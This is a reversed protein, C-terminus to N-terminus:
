GSVQQLRDPMVLLFVRKARFKIKRMESVLAEVQSEYLAEFSKFPPMPEIAVVLSCDAYDKIAKKQCTKLVCLFLESFDDGPSGMQAEGYGRTVVLKADKAAAAGDHPITMEIRDVEKGSEDFVLADYAQNELVPQIEYTEPYACQAFLSLPVIEDLFKKYLGIRQIGRNRESVDAQVVRKSEGVFDRLARPSRRQEMNYKTIIMIGDKSERIANLGSPM